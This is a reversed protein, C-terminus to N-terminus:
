SMSRLRSVGGGFGGSGGSEWGGRRAGDNGLAFRGAVVEVDEDDFVVGDVLAEDLFDDGVEAAAPGGGFVAADGEVPERAVCGVEHEHVEVHGLEIAEGRDGLDAGAVGTGFFAVEPDDGEGGVGAFVLAGAGEGGAGVIVEGLRDAEGLEGGGEVAVEVLALLESISARHGWRALRECRWSAVRAGVKTARGDHGGRGGGAGGCVRSGQEHEDERSQEPAQTEGEDLGDAADMKVKEGFAAGPEDGGAGKGWAVQEAREDKEGEAEGREAREGPEFEFLGEAETEEGDAAHDELGVAKLEGGGGGGGKERLEVRDHNGHPEGEARAAAWGRDDPEAAEEDEGADGHEGLEVPAVEMEAAAFEFGEDAGDEEHALDEPEIAAFKGGVADEGDGSEHEGDFAEGRERHGKEGRRVGGRQKNRPSGVGPEEEGRKEGDEAGDAPEDEHVGVLGFDAGGFGTEDVADFGDEGREEREEQGRPEGSEAAEVVGVFDGGGVEEEAAREDGGGVEEEM